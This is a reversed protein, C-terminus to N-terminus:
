NQERYEEEEETPFHSSGTAEDDVPAWEESVLDFTFCDNFYNWGDCGGFILMRERHIM